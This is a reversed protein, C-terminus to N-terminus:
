ANYVSLNRKKEQTDYKDVSFVSFWNKELKQFYTEGTSEKERERMVM